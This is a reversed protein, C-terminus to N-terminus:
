TKYNKNNNNKDIAYIFSTELMTQQITDYRDTQDM